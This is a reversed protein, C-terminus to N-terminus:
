YDNFAKNNSYTSFTINKNLVLHINSSILITKAQLFLLEIKISTEKFNMIENLASELTKYPFEITGLEVNHASHQDIYIVLESRCFTLNSAPMM